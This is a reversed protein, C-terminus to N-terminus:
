SASSASSSSNNCPQNDKRAKSKVDEILAQLRLQDRFSLVLDHALAYQLTEEFTTPSSNTSVTPMALAKNTAAGFEMMDDMMEHM